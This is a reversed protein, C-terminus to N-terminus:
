YLNDAITAGSTGEDFSAITEHGLLLLANSALSISSTTGTM